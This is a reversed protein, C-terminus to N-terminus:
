KGEGADRRSASPENRVESGDAVRLPLSPFHTLLPSRYIRRLSQCFMGILNKGDREM